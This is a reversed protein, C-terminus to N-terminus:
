DQDPADFFETTSEPVHAARIQNLYIPHAFGCHRLYAQGPYSARRAEEAPPPNLYTVVATVTRREIRGALEGRLATDWTVVLPLGSQAAAILERAQEYTLATRDALEHALDSQADWHLTSRHDVQRVDEWTVSTFPKRAATTETMPTLLGYAARHHLDRTVM